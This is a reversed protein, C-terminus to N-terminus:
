ERSRHARKAQDPHGCWGGAGAVAMVSEALAVWLVIARKGRGRATPARPWGDRRAIITNGTTKGGGRGGCRNSHQGHPPLVRRSSPWRRSKRSGTHQLPWLNAATPRRATGAASTAPGREVAVQGQGQWALDSGLACSPTCGSAPIRSRRQSPRESGPKTAQLSPTWRDVRAIDWLVCGPRRSRRTSTSTPWRPPSQAPTRKTGHADRVASARPTSTRTRADRAPPRHVQEPALYPVTGIDRGTRTRAARMTLARAM